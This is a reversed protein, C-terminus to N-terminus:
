LKLNRVRIVLSLSSRPLSLIALATCASPTGGSRWTRHFILSGQPVSWVSYSALAGLMQLARACSRFCSSCVDAAPAQRLQAGPIAQELGSWIILSDSFEV